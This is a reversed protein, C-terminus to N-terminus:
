TPADQLEMVYSGKPFDARRFHVPGLTAAWYRVWEEDAKSIKAGLVVECISGPPLSLYPDDGDRALRWEKEYQWDESKTFYAAAISDDNAKADSSFTFIPVANDYSVPKAECLAVCCATDLGICIGRHSDAYHAWMLPHRPDMVFSGIRRNGFLSSAHYTAAYKGWGQAQLQVPNLGSPIPPSAVEYRGECPDNQSSIPALFLRNRLFIEQTHKFSDGSISRYKYLIPPVQM